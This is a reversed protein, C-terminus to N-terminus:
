LMTDARSPLRKFFNGSASPMTGRFRPHRLLYLGLMLVVVRPPTVYLVAAVVLCFATFLATARPDRWALLARVREGQTAVDGVVAQIRGAVSRLRDYRVRVVVGPRSTPFTDAEEDLEDQRVAEDACSLRADVHAPGRPRRRYNWLGTMGTYLFLTPLIHEPFCTIAVLLVHALITTAPRKWRCVDVLRRAAGAAGALLATVRLFNARSRRLSWAHADADLVYEVVERRLPPEARGLRTAVLGAAQRRLADLQPATFPHLYHPAPLLPQAYLRAVSALSLCTLRVALRLDGNRRLGSSPHLAVLSHTNTHVTDTQLTSLRIRVKGIRQDNSSASTHDNTGALHSNDFVALTLVTCPDYVEWTYQENWRPSCSDVVTRTRAWKHGYRAVCYADTRGRGDVATKMPALGEAGLFGVELVGVPRPWLQRV